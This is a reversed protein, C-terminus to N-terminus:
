GRMLEFSLPTGRKCLPCSDPRWLQRERRALVHFPIGLEGGLRTGDDGLEVLAALAVVTAGAERLARATSRCAAGANIADDLLLVRAGEVLTRLSPPVRFRSDEDSIRESFVCPLGLESAVFQSVFAGGVLPGCVVEPRQAYSLRAIESAWARMHPTHALLKQLDIWLDGHHGSEYVFHGNATRLALELQERADPLPRMRCISALKADRAGASEGGKALTEPLM